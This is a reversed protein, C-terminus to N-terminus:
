FIKSIRICFPLLIVSWPAGGAVVQGSWYSDRMRLPFASNTKYLSCYIPSCRVESVTSWPHSHSISRRGSGSLTQARINSHTVQDMRFSSVVPVGLLLVFRIEDLSWDRVTRLHGTVQAQVRTQNRTMTNPWLEKREKDGVTAEGRGRPM